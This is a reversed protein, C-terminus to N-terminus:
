PYDGGSFQNQYSQLEAGRYQQPTSQQLVDSSGQDPATATVTKVISKAPPPSWELFDISVTYRKAATEFKPILTYKKIVVLTVADATQPMGVFEFSIGDAIQSDAPISLVGAVFAYWDLFDFDQFLQMTISGEVPPRHTRILQAGDSGKGAPKDWITEREFGRIGGVPITGPSVVGGLKFYHWEKANSIPDLEGSM